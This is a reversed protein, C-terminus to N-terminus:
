IWKFSFSITEAEGTLGSKVKVAVQARMTLPNAVPKPKPKAMIGLTALVLTLTLRM